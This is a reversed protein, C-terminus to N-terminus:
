RHDGRHGYGSKVKRIAKKLRDRRLSAKIRTWKKITGNKRREVYFRPSIKKIIERKAM